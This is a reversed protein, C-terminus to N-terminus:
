KAEEPQPTQPHNRRTDPPECRWGSPYLAVPQGCPPDTHVVCARQKTHTPPTM